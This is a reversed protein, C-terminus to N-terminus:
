REAGPPTMQTARRLRGRALLTVSVPIAISAALVWVLAAQQRAWHGAAAYVAAIGLNALLTPALFRSWSMSGAGALLICTEALIPIARTLVLAGVGLRDTLASLGALDEPGALRLVLPRGWRRALAFAAIAGLSMGLWSALTGGAFGLRAGAFTSVLSSPIPLLVDGALSSTVLTASWGPGLAPDCWAAVRAELKPGFLVFPVIPAGLATAVILGLRITSCEM